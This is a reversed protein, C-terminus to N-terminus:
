EFFNIFLGIQLFTNINKVRLTSFCYLLVRTRTDDEVNDDQVIKQIWLKM